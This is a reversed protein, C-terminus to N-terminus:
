KTPLPAAAILAYEVMSAGGKIGALASEDLTQPIQTKLDSPRRTRKM